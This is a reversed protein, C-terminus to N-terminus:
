RAQCAGGASGPFASSVILMYRLEHDDRELEDRLADAYGVFRLFHDSAMTYGASTAKCDMLALPRGDAPWRLVADPLRQGRAAEGFREGGFRLTSTMLRFAVREFLDEAAIDAGALEGPLEHLALSPLWRLGVPDLLFADRELDRQAQVQEYAPRPIRQAWAISASREMRAILEDPAVVMVDAPVTAPLDGGVAAIMIGEADGATRVAESLRRLAVDDVPQDAVRVRVRRRRWLLPTELVLEDYSATSHFEVVRAAGDTLLIQALKRREERPLARLETPGFRRDPRTVRVPPPRNTPSSV